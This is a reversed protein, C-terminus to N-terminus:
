SQVGVKQWTPVGSAVATAAYLIGVSSVGLDGVEAGRGSVNVGPTTEAVGLTPATGTLANSGITMLEVAQKARLAGFTLLITGIGATLSGATAVCGNTGLSPHADLAAQINALLTTNNSSWTIASTNNSEFRLKFTGGTPTGGITLTQVEDTGSVLTGLRRTRNSAM